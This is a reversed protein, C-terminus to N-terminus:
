RCKRLNKRNWWELSNSRDILVVGFDLASVSRQARDLIRHLDKKARERDRNLKFIDDLLVDWFGSSEPPPTKKDTRLQDLWHNLKRLQILTYIVYFFLTLSLLLWVNGFLFGIAGGALLLVLLRNLEQKWDQAM